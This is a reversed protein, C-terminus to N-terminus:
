DLGADSVIGDWEEPAISQEQLMTQARSELTLAQELMESLDANRTSGFLRRASGAIDRHRAAALQLRACAAQAALPALPGARPLQYLGSDSTPMVSDGGGTLANVLDLISESRAEYYQVFGVMERLLLTEEEQRCRFIDAAKTVRILSSPRGQQSWALTFDRQMVKSADVQTYGLSVPGGDQDSAALVHLLLNHIGCLRLMKAKCTSLASRLHTMFSSSDTSAPTLEFLIPRELYYLV